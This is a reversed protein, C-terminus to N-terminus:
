PLASAILPFPRPMAARRPARSRTVGAAELAAGTRENVQEEVGREALAIANAIARRSSSGHCM